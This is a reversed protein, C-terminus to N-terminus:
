LTLRWVVYQSNTNILLLANQKTNSEKLGTKIKKSLQLELLAREMKAYLCRKEQGKLKHHTQMQMRTLKNKLEMLHATLTMVKLGLQQHCNNYLFNILLAKTNIYFTILVALHIVKVLCLFLKLLIEVEMVIMNGLLNSQQNVM